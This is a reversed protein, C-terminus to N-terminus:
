LLRQGWPGSCSLLLIRNKSSADWISVTMSFLGLEGLEGPAGEEAMSCGSLLSAGGGDDECGIPTAVISVGRGLDADGTARSRGTSLSTDAISTEGAGEDAALVVGDLNSEEGM